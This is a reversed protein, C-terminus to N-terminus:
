ASRVSAGGFSSAASSPSSCSIASPLPASCPLSAPTGVPIERWGSRDYFAGPCEHKVFIRAVPVVPALPIRIEIRGDCRRVTGHRVPAGTAADAIPAVSSRRPLPMSWRVSGEVLSEFAVLLRGPLIKGPALAICLAGAELTAALIPHHPPATDELLYSESERAYATFRKRSLAMQTHHCQIAARKVACEADTLHLSVQARPAETPAHILYHLLTPRDTSEALALLLQVALANHDPHVDHLSPSAIVTPRFTTFERALTAISAQEARLLAGTTGQDPWGLFRVRSEPVGLLRLAALAEARRRAGWRQREAAGIRWRRELFRQPWPNNDGDSIFLVRVEAEVRVARQILGATALSEDDPHPAIVLLRDRPTIKLTAPLNLFTPSPHVFASNRPTLGAFLRNRAARQTGRPM